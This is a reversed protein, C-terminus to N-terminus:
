LFVIPMRIELVMIINSLFRVFAHSIVVILNYNVNLDLVLRGIIAVLAFDVM